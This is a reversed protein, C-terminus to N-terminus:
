IKATTITTIAIISYLWHQKGATLRRNPCCHQGSINNAEISAEMSAEMGHKISAEMGATVISTQM